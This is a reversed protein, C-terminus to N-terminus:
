DLAVFKELNLLEAPHRGLAQAILALEDTNFPRNSHLRDLLRTKSIGTRRSVERFSLGSKAIGNMVQDAVFESFTPEHGDEPDDRSPM